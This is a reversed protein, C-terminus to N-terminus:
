HYCGQVYLHTSEKILIHSILRLLAYTLHYIDSLTRTLSRGVHGSTTELGCSSGAETGNGKIIYIINIVMVPTRSAAWVLDLSHVSPETTYMAEWRRNAQFWGYLCHKYCPFRCILQSDLKIWEKKKGKPLFTTTCFKVLVSLLAIVIIIIIIIITAIM